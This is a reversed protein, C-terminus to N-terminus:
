GDGGGLNSWIARGLAGADQLSAGEVLEGLEAFHRIDHYCALCAWVDRVVVAENFVELLHADGVVLPDLKGVNADLTVRVKHEKLLIIQFNSSRNASIKECPQIPAWSRGKM